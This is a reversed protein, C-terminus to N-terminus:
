DKYIARVGMSAALADSANLVRMIMGGGPDIRKPSEWMFRSFDKASGASFSGDFSHLVRLSPRHIVYMRNAGPTIDYDYRVGVGGGMRTESVITVVNGVVNVVKLIEGDPRDTGTIWVLDGTQTITGDAITLNVEDKDWDNGGNQASSFKAQPFYVVWQLDKNATIADVYLGVSSWADTLTGPPIIRRPDGWYDQDDRQGGADDTTSNAVIVSSGATGEGDGLPYIHEHQERRMMDQFNVWMNNDGSDVRDGDGGGSACHYLMNFDCGAAIEFGAGGNDISTCNLLNCRSGNSIYFGRSAGNSGVTHCYQLKAGNAGIDYATTAAQGVECLRLTVSNGDIDFGVSPAGRARCDELIARAGAVHFGIQGAQGTNIEVMKCNDGSVTLCTGSTTDVIVVGTEGLLQLCDKALDLGPEDYIGCALQIKDGSAAVDLAAGITEFASDPTAGSNSDNGTNVNAYWTNGMSKPINEIDLDCVVDINGSIELGM